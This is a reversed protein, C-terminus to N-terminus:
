KIFWNKDEGCVLRGGDIFAATSTVKAGLKEKVMVLIGRTGVEMAMTVHEFEIFDNWTKAILKWENKGNLHHQIKGRIEERKKEKEGERQLLELRQEDSMEMPPANLEEVPDDTPVVEETIAEEIEPTGNVGLEAELADNAKKNEDSM